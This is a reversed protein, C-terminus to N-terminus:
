EPLERKTAEKLSLIKVAKELSLAAGQDYLKLKYTDEKCFFTLKDRVAQECFDAPIKCDTAREKVTVVGRILPRHNADHTSPRRTKSLRWWVNGYHDRLQRLDM